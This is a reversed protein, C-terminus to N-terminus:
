GNAFVGVGQGHFQGSPQVAEGAVRFHMGAPHNKGAWGDGVKAGDERGGGTPGGGVEVHVRDLGKAQHLHVDEAM